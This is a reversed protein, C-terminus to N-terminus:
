KQKVLVCFLHYHGNSSYFSRRFGFLSFLRKALNILGLIRLISALARKAKTAFSEQIVNNFFNGGSPFGLQQYHWVSLNNRQCLESVAGCTLYQMHELDVRLTIKNEDIDIANGNPTWILIKGRESLLSCLISILYTPNLPHEIVDNLVILDYEEDITKLVDFGGLLVSEIGLEHCISVASSDLEIGTVSAGLRRAQYLFSGTGCGFDLVKYNAANNCNIDKKLFSLRPDSQPDISDLESRIEKINRNTQGGFHTDHYSNYFDSLLDETPSPSVYYGSCNSCRLVSCKDPRIYSPTSNSLGCFPCDRSKFRSFDWTIMRKDLPELIM